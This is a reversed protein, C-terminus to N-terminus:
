ERDVKYLQGLNKLKRGLQKEANQKSEDKNLQTLGKELETIADINQQQVGFAFDRKSENYILFWMYSKALDKKIKDGDRYMIALNARASTIMGSLELDEVDPLSGLRIAWLLMSNISKETGIGEQFCSVVNFMCEPDNQEACKLWWYFAQKDNKIYGRGTSYSYAMKFQADKWGQKASKLFWENAVSDNKEVEVGQQFCIGYNYQAEAHGAEAAKKLLPVASKFDNRSLFDKSQQNLEAGTQGRSTIAAFVTLFLILAKSM